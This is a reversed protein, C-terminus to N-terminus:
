ASQEELYVVLFEKRLPKEDGLVGFLIPSGTALLTTSWCNARSFYFRM